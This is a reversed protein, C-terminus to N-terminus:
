KGVWVDFYAIQKGSYQVGVQKVTWVVEDITVQDNPKPEFPTNKAPLLFYLDSALVSGNELMQGKPSEPPAIKVLYPISVSPSEFQGTADNYVPQSDGQVQQTFTVEKGFKKVLKFATERARKDLTM